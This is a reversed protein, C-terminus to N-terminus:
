NVSKAGAIRPLPSQGVSREGAGKREAVDRLERLLERPLGSGGNQGDIGVTLGLNARRDTVNGTMVLYKDMLKTLGEPTVQQGQVFVRQGSQEDTEWRDQLSLGFKIVAAHITEFADTEIEAVKRARREALKELTKENELAQYQERSADWGHRRGYATVASASADYKEALQRYSVDSTIYEYYMVDYDHKTKANKAM